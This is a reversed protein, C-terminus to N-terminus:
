DEPPPNPALGERREAAAAEVERSRERLEILLRAAERRSAETESAAPEYHVSRTASVHRGDALTARVQIRNEGPVLMAFGDFAADPLVRVARAPQGTTLNEITLALPELSGAVRDLILDEPREFPILQCLTVRALESLFELDADEGFAFTCVRIGREALDRARAIARRRAYFEASPVTPEGDSFLLVIRPRKPGRLWPAVDLMQGAERLAQDISTGSWDERIRIGAVAALAAEPSGVPARARARATYTLVGIRNRREALGDILIRAVLLESIAIIDDSDSTWRRPPRGHGGGNKAWRRTTGVTGDRDLDVGSALLASNSLDIAIVIDSSYLDSAAARGKVEVVPTPLTVRQGPSPSDLQLGLPEPAGTEGFAAPAAIQAALILVAIGRSARM